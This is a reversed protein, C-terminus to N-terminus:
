VRTMGHARALPLLRLYAATLEDPDTAAVPEQTAVKTPELVLMLLLSLRLLGSLHLRPPSESLLLRGQLRLQQLLQLRVQQLRQQQLWLVAPWVGQAPMAAM